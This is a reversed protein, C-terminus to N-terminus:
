PCAVGNSPPMRSSRRPRSEIVTFGPPVIVAPAPARSVAISLTPRAAPRSMQIYGDVFLEVTPPNMPPPLAPVPVISCRVVASPNTTEASTAGMSPLPSM